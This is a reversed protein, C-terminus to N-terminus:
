DLACSACCHDVLDKKSKGTLKIRKHKPFRKIVEKLDKKSLKKLQGRGIKPPSSPTPEQSLTLEASLSPITLTDM